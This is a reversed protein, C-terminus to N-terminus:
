NEEATRASETAESESAETEEEGPVPVFEVVIPIPFTRPARKQWWEPGKRGVLVQGIEFMNRKLPRAVRWTMTVRELDPEIVITDALATVDERPGRQPFIQIPAEFHPLTFVRHGDRTLNLLTVTHEGVPLALQQDPPAAQYYLDDFDSPLFPFVSEQWDQDYTGAYRVRPEWHRGIAGFSMPRYNGDPQTVPIGLEETNPLPSGELWDAELHKHFGRGSPNPSFAAHQAPDEHRLDAGGFARDYSIPMAAFREPMSARAGGATFWVRDGVVDFSKFWAGIQLGVKVRDTPRGDPAYACGNLLVDCHRKRPAFDVEYQPASMGPKGFFEDSMVLPVQVDHLAVRGGSQAPIQFTGKVAIVLLERGSPELGMTYGAVMRTANILDM